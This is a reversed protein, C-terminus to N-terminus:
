AAIIITPKPSIGFKFNFSNSITCKSTTINAAYSLGIVELSLIFM